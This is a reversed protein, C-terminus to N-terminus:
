RGRNGSTDRYCSAPNDPFRQLLQCVCLPARTLYSMMMMMMMMMMLMMMLMIMMLMMMLMMM